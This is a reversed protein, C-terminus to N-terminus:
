PTEQRQLALMAAYVERKSLKLEQSVQRVADRESLGARLAEALATALDKPEEPVPLADTEELSVSPPGVVLTVEGRAERKAFEAVVEGLNGRVFEEFRKTLERGVAVPREPGFAEAMEKLTEATRNAAEYFILTRTESAALASLKARRSSKTRPLFGEFAFRAPPLGSGVLACLVASAGPIPVVAVDAALAAAVLEVGPDSVGPTGADTVLAIAQGDEAMRRVLSEAREAESHQHYAILPTKIQFHSLLNRTHRTDEAAVLDAERLVRLARM